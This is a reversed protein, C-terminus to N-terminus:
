TKRRPDTVTINRGLVAELEDTPLAGVRLVAPPDTTTDIVTSAVGLESPGGDLLVDIMGDLQALVGAATRPSPEGHINASPAAVPCQCAEIFARAVAHDPVRIGLKGSGATIIEPVADSAPAIITLPGPLCAAMLKAADDSVDRLLPLADEPSAVMVSFPQTATRRKVAYLRAVAGFDLANTGLGYVTETPFAVLGGERCVRAADALAHTDPRQPDIVVVRTAPSRTM